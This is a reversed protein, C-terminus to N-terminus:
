CKSTCPPLCVPGSVPSPGLPLPGGVRPFSKSSASTSGPAKGSWPGTRSDSAGQMANCKAPQCAPDKHSRSSRCAVYPTGMTEGSIECRVFAMRGLAAESGARVSKGEVQLGINSILNCQLPFFGQVICAIYRFAPRGVVITCEKIGAADRVREGVGVSRGNWSCAVDAGAIAVDRSLLLPLCALSLSGRPHRRPPSSPQLADGDPADADPRIPLSPSRVDSPRRGRQCAWDMGMGMGGMMGDRGAM